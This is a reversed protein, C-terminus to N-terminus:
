LKVQKHHNVNPDRRRADCPPRTIICWGWGGLWWIWGWGALPPLRGPQRGLLVWPAEVSKIRHFIISEDFNEGYFNLKFIMCPAVCFGGLSWLDVTHNYPQEQVLEPAMYLPTGQLVAKPLVSNALVLLVSM